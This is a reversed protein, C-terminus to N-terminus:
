NRFNCFMRCFSSGTSLENNIMSRHDMAHM